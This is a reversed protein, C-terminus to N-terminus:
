PAKRMHNVFWVIANNWIAYNKSFDDQPENPNFINLADLVSILYMDGNTAKTYCQVDHMTRDPYRIMGVYLDECVQNEFKMLCPIAKAGM